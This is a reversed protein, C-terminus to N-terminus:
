LNVKHPEEASLLQKTDLKQILDRAHVCKQVEDVSNRM